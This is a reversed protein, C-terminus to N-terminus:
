LLAAALALVLLVLNRVVHSVGVPKVSWAGFCACPPHEGQALRQVLLATMAVLLAVAFWAVVHREVQAVLLAGLVAEVFPVVVAMGEPVGLGRAQARWAQPAALKTVAAVLFVVGVIVAAITGLTSASM